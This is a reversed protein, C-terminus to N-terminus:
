KSYSGVERTFSWADSRDYRDLACRRHRRHRRAKNTLVSASLFFLFSFFCAARHRNSEWVTLTARSRAGGCRPLIPAHCTRAAEFSISSGSAAQAVRRSGESGTLGVGGGGGPSLHSLVLRLLAACPPFHSFSATGGGLQWESVAPKVIM